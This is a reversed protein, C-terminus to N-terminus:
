RYKEDIEQEQVYVHTRSIKLVHSHGISAYLGRVTAYERFQLARYNRALQVLDEATVRLKSSDYHNLSLIQFSISWWPCALVLIELTSNDM